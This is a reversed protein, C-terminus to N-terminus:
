IAKSDETRQTDVPRQNLTIIDFTIAGRKTLEKKAVRRTPLHKFEPNRRQNGSAIPINDVLEGRSDFGLIAKLAM